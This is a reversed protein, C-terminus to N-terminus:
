YSVQFIFKSVYLSCPLTIHQNYLIYIIIYMYLGGSMLINIRQVVNDETQNAVEALRDVFINNLVYQKLRYQAGIHNSQM